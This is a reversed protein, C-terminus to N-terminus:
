PACSRSSRESCRPQVGCHVFSEIESLSNVTDGSGPLAPAPFPSELNRDLEDAFAALADTLDGLAAASKRAGGGGRQKAGVRPKLALEKMALPRPADRDSRWVRTARRLLLGCDALAKQARESAQRSAATSLAERVAADSPSAL